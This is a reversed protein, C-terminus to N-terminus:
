ERINLGAKERAAAIAHMTSVSATDYIIGEFSDPLGMMQRLWDLVVDELETSAPATRWLMAKMDFAAAFMEGFVGVSSTSTSFLGHFNPHNWHTVAPLILRDMDKLVESFDQGDMPPSTPLNNRLWNPEVQSLVPLDEIHEFYNAIWDVIQYGLKRFEEAPMDGLGTSSTDKM